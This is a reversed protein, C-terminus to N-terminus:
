KILGYHRLYEEIPVSSRNEFLKLRNGSYGLERNLIYEEIDQAFLGDIMDMGFTPTFTCLSYVFVSPKGIIKVQVIYGHKEVYWIITAEHGACVPPAAELRKADLKSFEEESLFEARSPHLIEPPFARYGTNTSM